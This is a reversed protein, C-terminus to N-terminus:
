ISSKFISDLRLIVIPISPIPVKLTVCSRFEGILEQRLVHVTRGGGVCNSKPFILPPVKDLNILERCGKTM